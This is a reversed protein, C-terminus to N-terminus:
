DTLSLSVWTAGGLLLTSLYSVLTNASSKWSTPNIYVGPFHNFKGELPIILPDLTRILCHSPQPDAAKVELQERLLEAKLRYANLLTKRQGDAEVLSYLRSRSARKDSVGQSITSM